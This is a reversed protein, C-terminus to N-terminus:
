ALVTAIMLQLLLSVLTNAPAALLSVPLLPPPPRTLSDSISVVWSRGFGRVEDGVVALPDRGQLRGMWMGVWDNVLGLM